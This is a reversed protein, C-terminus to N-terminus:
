KITNELQNDHPNFLTALLLFKTIGRHTKVKKKFFLVIKKVLRSYSSFIKLLQFIPSLTQPDKSPM